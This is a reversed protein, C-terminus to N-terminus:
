RYPAYLSVTDIHDAANGYAAPDVQLDLSGHGEVMVFVDVGAEGDESAFVRLQRVNPSIPFNGEAGSIIASMSQSAVSSFRMLLLRSAVTTVADGPYLQVTPWRGFQGRGIVRRTWPTVNEGSVALYAPSRFVDIAEVDYLALYRRPLGIMVFRRGTEFGPVALREAIHDTDYWANLEEEFDAPPNTTVILMGKQIM